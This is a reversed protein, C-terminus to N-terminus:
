RRKEKEDTKVELIEWLNPRKFLKKMVEKARKKTEFHTAEDICFVYHKSDIDSYYKLFMNTHRLDYTNIHKVVYKM